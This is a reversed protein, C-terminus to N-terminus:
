KSNAPALGTSGDPKETDPRPHAQGTETKAEEEALLRELVVREADSPNNNLLERFRAINQNRVFKQM